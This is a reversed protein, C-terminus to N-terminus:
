DSGLIEPPNLSETVLPYVDDGVLTDACSHMLTEDETRSGATSRVSHWQDALSTMTNASAGSASKTLKNMSQQSTRGTVPTGDKSGSRGRLPRQPLTETATEDAVSSNNSNTSIKRM